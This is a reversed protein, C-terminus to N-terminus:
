EPKSSIQQADHSASDRCPHRWGKASANSRGCLYGGPIRSGIESCDTVVCGLQTILIEIQRLFDPEIHALLRFERRQGVVLVVALVLGTAPGCNEDDYSVCRGLCYLSHNRENENLILKPLSEGSKLNSFRGNWCPAGENCCTAGRCCNQFSGIFELNSKAITGAQM